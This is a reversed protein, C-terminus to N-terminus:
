PQSIPPQPIMDGDVFIMPEIDGYSQLDIIGGTITSPDKYGNATLVFGDKNYIFIPEIKNTKTYAASAFLTKNLYRQIASAM